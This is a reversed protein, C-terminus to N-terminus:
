EFQCRWVDELAQGGVTDLTVNVLVDALVGVVVRGDSVVVTETAAPELTVKV